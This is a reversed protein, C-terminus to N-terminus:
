RLSRRRRSHSLMITLLKTSPKRRSAHDAPIPDVKGAAATHSLYARHSSKATHLDHQWFFFGFTLSASCDESEDPLNISISLHSSVSHTTLLRALLFVSLEPFSAGIFSCFDCHLTNRILSSSQGASTTHTRHSLSLTLESHARVGVSVSGKAVKQKKPHAKRTRAMMVVVPLAPMCTADFMVKRAADSEKFSVSRRCSRWRNKQM